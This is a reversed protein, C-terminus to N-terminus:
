PAAPPADRPLGELFVANFQGASHRLAKLPGYEESAYWRRAQDLSPFELMVPFAPRWLGEVLEVRGGIVLYRGQYQAVVPGTRSKYDNLTGPDTVHVNDFLCYAPM